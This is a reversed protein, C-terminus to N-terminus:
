CFFPPFTLSILPIPFFASFSPLIYLHWWYFSLFLSSFSPYQSFASIIGSRLIIRLCCITIDFDWYNFKQRSFGSVAKSLHKAVYFWVGCRQSCTDRLSALLFWYCCCCEFGHQKWQLFLLYLVREMGAGNRWRKTPELVSGLMHRGWLWQQYGEQTSPMWSFLLWHSLAWMNDTRLLDDNFSLNAAGCYQTNAKLWSSQVRERNKCLQISCRVNRKKEACPSTKDSFYQLSM